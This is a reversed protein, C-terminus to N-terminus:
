CRYSKSARPYAKLRIGMKDPAGRCSNSQLNVGLELGEVCGISVNRRCNPEDLAVLIGRLVGSGGLFDSGFGLSIKRGVPSFRATLGGWTSILGRLPVLM